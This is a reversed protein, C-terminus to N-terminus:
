QESPYERVLNEDLTWLDEFAEESEEDPAQSDVLTTFFEIMANMDDLHMDRTMRLSVWERDHIHIPMEMTQALPLVTVMDVSSPLTIRLTDVFQTNEQGYGYAQVLESIYTAMGHVREANHRLSDFDGCANILARVAPAAAADETSTPEASALFASAQKPGTLSHTVGCVIDAGWQIPAKLLALAILDSLVIVKAGVRHAEESITEWEDLDGDGNPWQVFVATCDKYIHINRCNSRRVPISMTDAAKAIPDAFGTEMLQDIIIYQGEHNMNSEAISLLTRVLENTPILHALDPTTGALTAILQKASSFAEDASLASTSDNNRM